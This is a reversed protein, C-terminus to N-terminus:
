AGDAVRFLRTIRGWGEVDISFEVARPLPETVTNSARDILPWQRQAAFKADFFRVEVANVNELLVADQPASNPARDLAVWTSRLLQQDKVAYAVRQLGSRAALGPNRWGTRTFELLPEGQEVGRMAPQESDYNDRIKRNVAQEIDREMLTFALQLAALQAAQQEVRARTDLANRLGGYAMAALVAFIAVAVLLELLTFGCSSHPTLHSARGIAPSSHPTLPSPYFGHGPRLPKKSRM